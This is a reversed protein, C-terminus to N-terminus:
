RDQVAQREYREVDDQRWNNRAWSQRVRDRRELGMVLGEDSSRIPGGWVVADTSEGRPQKGKLKERLM